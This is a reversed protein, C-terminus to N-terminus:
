FRLETIKTSKYKAHWHKRDAQIYGDLHHSMWTNLDSTHDREGFQDLWLLKRGSTVLIFASHIDRFSVAFYAPKGPRARGLVWGQPDGQLNLTMPWGRTRGTRPYAFWRSRRAIGKERLLAVIDSVTGGTARNHARRWQEVQGSTTHPRLGRAVDLILLLNTYCGYLPDGSPKRRSALWAQAQRTKTERADRMVTPVALPAASTSTSEQPAVAMSVAPRAESARILLGTTAANGAEKQLTLLQESSTSLRAPPRTPPGHKPDAGTAREGGTDKLM